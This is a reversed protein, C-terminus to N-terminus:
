HTHKNIWRLSSQGSTKEVDRSWWDVAVHSSEGTIHALSPTVAPVVVCDQLHQCLPCLPCHSPLLFSSARVARQSGCIVRPDQLAESPGRDACGPSPQVHMDGFWEQLCSLLLIVCGLWLANRCGLHSSIQTHAFAQHTNLLLTDSRTRSRVGTVPSSTSHNGNSVSGPESSLPPRCYTTRNAGRRGGAM